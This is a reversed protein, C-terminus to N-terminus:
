EHQLEQGTFVQKKTHSVTGTKSLTTIKQYHQFESPEVTDQKVM